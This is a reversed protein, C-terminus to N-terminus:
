PFQFELPQCVLRPHRDRHAVEGRPRALPVLDFMTEEGKDALIPAPLRQHAVLHHDVENRGRRGLRAQLDHALQILVRVRYPELDRLLGHLLNMELFVGEVSLPIISDKWARLLSVTIEHRISLWSLTRISCPDFVHILRDIQGFCSVVEAGCLLGVLLSVKIGTNASCVKGHKMRLYSRQYLQGGKTLCAPSVISDLRFEITSQDVFLFPKGGGQAENVIIENPSAM